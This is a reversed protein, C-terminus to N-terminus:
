QKRYGTIDVIALWADMLGSNNSLDKVPHRLSVCHNSYLDIAAEKRLRAEKEAQAEPKRFKFDKCWLVERDGHEDNMPRVMLWGDEKFVLHYHYEGDDDIATFPENIEPAWDVEKNLQDRLDSLAHSLGDIRGDEMSLWKLQQPNWYNRMECDLYPHVGEEDNYHEAGEPANDLIEKARENSINM